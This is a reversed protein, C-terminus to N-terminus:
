PICASTGECWKGYNTQNFTTGFLINSCPLVGPGALPATAPHSGLNSPQAVPIHIDGEASVILEYMTSHSRTRQYDHERIRHQDSAFPIQILKKHSAASDYTQISSLTEHKM